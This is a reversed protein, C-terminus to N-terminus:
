NSSAKKQIENRGGIFDVVNRICDRCINYGNNEYIYDDGWFRIEPAHITVTFSSYNELEEGCTDCFTKIM